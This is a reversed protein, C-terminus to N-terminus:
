RGAVTRIINNDYRWYTTIKREKVRGGIGWEKGWGLGAWFRDYSAAIRFGVVGVDRMIGVVGVRFVGL